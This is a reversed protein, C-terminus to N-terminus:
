LNNWADKSIEGVENYFYPQKTNRELSQRYLEEFLNMTFNHGKGTARGSQFVVYEGDLIRSALQKIYEPSNKCLKLM